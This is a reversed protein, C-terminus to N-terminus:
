PAAKGVLHVDPKGESGVNMKAVLDAEDGSFRIRYSALFPTRYRCVVAAYTDDATWAGSSAVAVSTGTATTLSGKVWNGKGVPIKQDIGRMRVSLVAGEGDKAPAWAFSELGMPNQAFAYRKGAVAAAAPSGAKGEQPKLRLGALREALRRDSDPDAPLASASFAPIIKDWVLNLEGQM